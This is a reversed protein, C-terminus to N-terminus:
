KRFYRQLRKNDEGYIESWSHTYIPSWKWDCIDYQNVLENGKTIPFLLNYNDVHKYNDLHITSIINRVRARIITHAKKKYYRHSQGNDKIVPHKKRSRSM